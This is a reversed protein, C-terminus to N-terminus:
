PIPNVAPVAVAPVAPPANTTAPPLVVKKAVAFGGSVVSEVIGNALGSIATINAAGAKGEATTIAAQANGVNVVLLPDTASKLDEFRADFSATEPNYKVDIVKAEISKPSEYSFRITAMNRGFINAYWKEGFLETYSNMIATLQDANQITGNEIAALLIKFATQGVPSIHKAPMRVTNEVRTKPTSDDVSRGFFACGTTLIAAIAIVLIKKM